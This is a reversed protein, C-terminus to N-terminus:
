RSSSNGYPCRLGVQDNSVKVVCRFCDLPSYIQVLSSLHVFHMTPIVLSRIPQPACRLTCRTCAPQFENARPLLVSPCAASVLYGPRLAGEDKTSLAAASSWRRIGAAHLIYPASNPTRTRYEGCPCAWGGVPKICGCPGASALVADCCPQPPSRAENHQPQPGRAAPWAGRQPNYTSNQILVLDCGCPPHRTYVHM